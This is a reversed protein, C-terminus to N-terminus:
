SEKIGFFEYVERRRLLKRAPLGLKRRMDQMYRLATRESVSLIEALEYSTILYPAPKNM